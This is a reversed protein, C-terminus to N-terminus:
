EELLKELITVSTRVFSACYKDLYGKERFEMIGEDTSIDCPLLSKCELSQHEIKFLEMFRAALRYTKEKSPYDSVDSMGYKLGIAMLAGTVAGCTMAQRSIGGGFACAIKLATERDMGMDPAFSALVAQACSYGALFDKIASETKEM